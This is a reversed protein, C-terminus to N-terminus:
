KGPRWSAVATLQLGGRVQQVLRCTVLLPQLAAGVDQAIEAALSEAYALRERFTELYLKFGKTEVLLDNPLVTLEVRYFDPQSTVPCRSTLEEGTLVVEHVADPCPITDLRTFDEVTTRKGLYTPTKNKPM